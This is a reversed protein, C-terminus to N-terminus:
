ATWLLATARKGLIYDNFVVRATTGAMGCCVHLPLLHEERPHCYRAHAAKEWDILRAQRDAPLIGPNTCTDILWRDFVDNRDDPRIEDNFSFARMNHFSFGSGIILINDSRLGTLARGIRIHAAPDLGAVLSLQVCPVDAAPYMLKLPIFM